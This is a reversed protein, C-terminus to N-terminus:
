NNKKREYVFELPMRYNDKIEDLSLEKKWFRIETM